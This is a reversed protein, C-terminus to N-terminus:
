QQLLLLSATLMNRLYMVQILLDLSALLFCLIMLKPIVVPKWWSLRSDWYILGNYFRIINLWWFGLKIEIPLIFLYAVVSSCSCLFIAMWFKKLFLHFTKKLSNSVFNWFYPNLNWLIIKKFTSFDWCDLKKWVVRSLHKWVELCKKKLCGSVFNRVFKSFTWIFWGLFGFLISISLLLSFKCFWSESKKKRQHKRQNVQM